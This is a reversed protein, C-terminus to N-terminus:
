KRKTLCKPPAEAELFVGRIVNGMREEETASQLKSVWWPRQAMAEKLTRDTWLWERLHM